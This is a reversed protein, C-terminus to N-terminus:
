RKVAWAWTLVVIKQFRGRKNAAPRSTLSTACCSKLLSDCLWSYVNQRRPLYPHDKPVSQWVTQKHAIRLQAPSLTFKPNLSTYSCTALPLPPAAKPGVQPGISNIIYSREEESIRRHTRPDDSVLTFWFVAWLCGVGGTLCLLVEETSLYPQDTLRCYSVSM